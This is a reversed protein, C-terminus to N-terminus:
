KNKPVIKEPSKRKQFVKQIDLKSLEKLQGLKLRNLKLQGIATRKLKLVDYGVKEMMKKIQRNKGESICIKIWEKEKSSGNPSIREIHTARVRGGVISVGKRLKDMKAQTIKGSIKVLYTKIVEHQPHNIQQSFEGDNTLLLLGETDWDLRGVPYIRNPIESIFDSICPRGEPDKLTTLIKKPKNFAYYVFEQTLNVLKNKYTIKDLEPTIKVGLEYTPKGNIKVLGQEILEDAKRRSCIGADALYKNLRIKDYNM